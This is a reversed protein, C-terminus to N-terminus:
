VAFCHEMTFSPFSSAGIFINDVSFAVAVDSDVVFFLSEVLVLVMLLKMLYMTNTCNECKIRNDHSPPIHNWIVQFHCLVTPLHTKDNTYLNKM